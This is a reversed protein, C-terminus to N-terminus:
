PADGRYLGEFPNQKSGSAAAAECSAQLRFGPVFYDYMKLREERLM